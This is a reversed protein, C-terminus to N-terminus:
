GSRGTERSMFPSAAVAAAIDVPEQNEALSRYHKIYEDFSPFEGQRKELPQTSGEPTTIFACFKELTRAQPNFQDLWLFQGQENIELFWWAGSKDVAFDVSGFCIGAKGAFALISKEIEPPTPTIEVQINGLGADQRWDLAKKANRLAFSYVRHGMIVMRVDYEKAVREQYIGPAYTLVEDSPLQEPTLEFTETVSVGSEEDRQWVHPTFGKGVTRSRSGTVFDRICGPSNSMLTEPIRLGCSRALHLQVAKNHIYRGASFRNICWVPLLELTYAISHYFSRYEMEAFKKDAEAVNPNHTPVDPRRIWVADGPEVTFPGLVMRTKGNLRLSSQQQETWSLGGWCAVEYGAQELAWKVPATHNEKAYAFMIVKM